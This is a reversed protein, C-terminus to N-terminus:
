LWGLKTETNGKEWVFWGFAIFGSSGQPQEEDGRWMTLRESFVHVRAPPQRNYILERRQKGELFALRLLMAFYDLEMDMCKVIFENALKYPPNTIVAPALPKTEMLFDVGTEAKDYGWDNLDTSVVSHGAEQLVNSIAGDGCACEWISHPVDEVSLLAQVAEPPTPYFDDKQRMLIGYGSRGHHGGCLRFQWGDPVPQDKHAYRCVIPFRMENSQEPTQLKKM